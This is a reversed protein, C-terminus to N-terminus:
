LNQKAWFIWSLRTVWRKTRNKYSVIEGHETFKVANNVLNILIQGLRLPDGVLDPPLDHHASILFELDKDQAKQGKIRSRHEKWINSGGYSPPYLLRIM